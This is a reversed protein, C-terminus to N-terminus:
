YAFGMSFSYVPDGEANETVAFTDTVNETQGSGSNFTHTWTTGGIIKVIVDAICTCAVRAVKESVDDYYVTVVTDTGKSAVSLVKEAM